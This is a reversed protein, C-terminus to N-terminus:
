HDTCGGPFVDSRHVFHLRKLVGVRQRQKLVTIAGDLPWLSFLLPSLQWELRAETRAPLQRTKNNGLRSSTSPLYAFLFM